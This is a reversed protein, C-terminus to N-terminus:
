FHNYGKVEILKNDLKLTKESIIEGIKIGFDSNKGTWCLEYDDGGYLAYELNSGKFVPINASQLNAGVGSSKLIHSLDAFWDM